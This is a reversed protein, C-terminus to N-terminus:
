NHFSPGFETKLAEAWGEIPQTDPLHSAGSGTILLLHM